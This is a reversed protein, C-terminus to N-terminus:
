TSRPARRISPPSSRARHSRASRGLHRGSLRARRAPAADAGAAPRSRAAGEVRAVAAVRRRLPDVSRARAGHEPADARAAGHLPAHRRDDLRLPRVHRARLRRLRRGEPHALCVAARRPQGVRSEGDGSLSAAESTRPRLHADPASAIRTRTCTSVTAACSASSRSAARARWISPWARRRPCRRSSRSARSCRRRCSRSRRAAASACSATTSRCASPADADPRDSQGRRQPPRCGGGVRRAPRRARVPGGRAARGDRRVRAAVSAASRAPERADRSRDDMRLRDAARGRPAVRDDPTRVPRVVFEGDGSASRGAASRGRGASGNALTVNVINEARARQDRTSHPRRLPRAQEARASSRCGHLYRRDITGLDDASRLVREALLFGAALERDAGPTRMIVAFARGHLRVELPEETAARDVDEGSSAGRVRTIGVTRFADVM